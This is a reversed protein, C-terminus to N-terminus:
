PGCRTAFILKGDQASGGVFLLLGGSVLWADLDVQPRPQDPAQLNIHLKLKAGSVELLSLSLRHKTAFDANQKGKDTLTLTHEELLKFSKFAAFQDDGLDGAMFELNSPIRAGGGASKTALIALCRCKTASVAPPAASARFSELGREGRQQQPTKASVNTTFTLGLVLGWAVQLMRRGFNAQHISVQNM